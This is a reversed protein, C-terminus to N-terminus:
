FIMVYHDGPMRQSPGPETGTFVRFLNMPAFCHRLIGLCQKTVLMRPKNTITPLFILFLLHALSFNVTCKSFLDFYETKM